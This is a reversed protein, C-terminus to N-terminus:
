RDPSYSAPRGGSAERFRILWQRNVSDFFSWIDSYLIWSRIRPNSLDAMPVSTARLVRKVINSCKHGGQMWNIRDFQGGTEIAAVARVACGAVHLDGRRGIEVCDARPKGTEDLRLRREVVVALFGFPQQQPRDRLHRFREEESM